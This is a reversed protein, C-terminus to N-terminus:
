PSIIAPEKAISYRKNPSTSSDTAPTPSIAGPDIKFGTTIKLKIAINLPAPYIKSTLSINLPITPKIKERSIEKM